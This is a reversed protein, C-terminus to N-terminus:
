GAFGVVQFQHNCLAAQRTVEISGYGGAIMTSEDWVELQV